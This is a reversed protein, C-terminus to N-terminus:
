TPNELSFQGSEEDYSFLEAYRGWSIVARLTAEARDESMHDALEEFFRTFPARPSPREDLVRKILASIPVYALLHDAFLRKRADVAADVYTRGHDTLQVDGEAMEAFRLLQLTEVIPFLEDAKMHLTAALDPLDAKGNYPSAALAEMLGSLVNTSLRPLAM